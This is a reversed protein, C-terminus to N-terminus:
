DRRNTARGLSFLAGFCLVSGLVFMGGLFWGIIHSIFAADM